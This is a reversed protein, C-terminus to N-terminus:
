LAQCRPVLRQHVIVSVEDQLAGATRCMCCCTCTRGHSWCAYQLCGATVAQVVLNSGSTVPLRVQVHEFGPLQHLLFVGSSFAAVLMGTDGHYDAATLKAQSQHFYQKETLAWRGGALREALTTATGQMIDQSTSGTPHTVAATASAQRARKIPVQVSNTSRKAGSGEQADRQKGREVGDAMDGGGSSLDEADNSHGPPPAYMYGHLAGDASLTYVDPPEVGAIAAARRAAPAAWFARM